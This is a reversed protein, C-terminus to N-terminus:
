HRIIFGKAKLLKIGTGIKGEGIIDGGYGMRRLAAAVVVKNAGVSAGGGVSSRKDKSKLVGVVDVVNVVPVPTLGLIFEFLGADLGTGLKFETGVTVAGV